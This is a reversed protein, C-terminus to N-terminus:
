REWFGVTHNPIDSILEEKRMHQWTAMAGDVRGKAEIDGKAAEKVDLYFMYYHLRLNPNYRMQDASWLPMGHTVVCSILADDTPDKMPPLGEILGTRLAHMLRPVDFVTFPLVVGGSGKLSGVSAPDTVYRTSPRARTLKRALSSM